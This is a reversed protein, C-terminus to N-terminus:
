VLDALVLKALLAGSAAPLAARHSGRPVALRSSTGRPLGRGASGLTGRRGASRLPPHRATLERRFEGAEHARPALLELRLGAVVGGLALPPHAGLPPLPPVEGRRALPRRLLVERAIGGGFTVPASCM